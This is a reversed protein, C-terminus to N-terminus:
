RQGLRRLEDKFRRFAGRGALARELHRALDPEAARAAFDVMDEYAEHSPVPEVLLFGREEPRGEGPEDGVLGSWLALEGSSPDFWWEHDDSHDQLAHILGSLDIQAPDLMTM